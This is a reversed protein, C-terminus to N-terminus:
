IGDLINWVNRAELVTSSDKIGFFVTIHCYFFGFWKSFRDGKQVHHGKEM